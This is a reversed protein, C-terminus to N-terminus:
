FKIGGDGKKIESGYDEDDEYGGSLVISDAGESAAGSIGAQTPPHVGSKALSERDPFVQGVTTGPVHGIIREKKKDSM